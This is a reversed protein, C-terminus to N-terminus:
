HIQFCSRQEVDDYVLFECSPVTESEFVPYYHAFEIGVSLSHRDIPYEAPNPTPWLTSSIIASNVSDQNVSVNASGVLLEARSYLSNVVLSSRSTIFDGSVTISAASNFPYAPFSIDRREDVVEFAVDIDTPYNKRLERYLSIAFDDVQSTIYTCDDDPCSVLDESEITMPQDNDVISLIAANFVVNFTEM